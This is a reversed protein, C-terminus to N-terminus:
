AQGGLSIIMLSLDQVTVGGVSGRFVQNGIDERLAAIRPSNTRYNAARLLEDVSTTRMDLFLSHARKSASTMSENGEIAGCWVAQPKFLLITSGDPSRAHNVKLTYTVQWGLDQLSRLLDITAQKYTKTKM